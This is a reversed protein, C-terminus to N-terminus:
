WLRERRVLYGELAGENVPRGIGPERPVQITGDPELAIPPDVIDREYYRDSASIDGPLKFNPLCALAINHLRGIGTEM